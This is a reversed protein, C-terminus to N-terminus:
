SKLSLRLAEGHLARLVKEMGDPGESLMLDIPTTGAFARNKGHLWDASEDVAALAADIESLYNTARQRVPL